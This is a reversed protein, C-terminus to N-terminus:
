RKFVPFKPAQHVNFNNYSRLVKNDINEIDCRLHALGIVKDRTGPIASPYIGFTDPIPNRDKVRKNVIGALDTVGLCPRNTNHFDYAPQMNMISPTNMPDYRGDYIFNTHLPRGQDKFIGMPTHLESYSPLKGGFGSHLQPSLTKSVM